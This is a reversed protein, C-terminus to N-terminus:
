PHKHQSAIVFRGDSLVEERLRQFVDGFQASDADGTCPVAHHDPEAISSDFRLVQPGEEFGGELNVHQHGGSRGSSLTFPFRGDLRAVDSYGASDRQCLGNPELAM